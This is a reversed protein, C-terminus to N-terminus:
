RWNLEMRYSIARHGIAISIWIMTGKWSYDADHGHVPPTSWVYGNPSKTADYKISLREDKLKYDWERRVFDYSMHNTAGGCTTDYGTTSLPKM